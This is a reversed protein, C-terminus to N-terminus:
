SSEIIPDPKRLRWSTKCDATSNFTASNDSRAAWASSAFGCGGVLRRAGAL